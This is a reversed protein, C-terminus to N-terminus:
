QTNEMASTIVRYCLGKNKGKAGPMSYWVHHDIYTVSQFFHMWLPM